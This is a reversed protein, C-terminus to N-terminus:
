DEFSVLDVPYYHAGLAQDFMPNITTHGDSVLAVLQMLAVAAQNRTMSPLRKDISAVASDWSARTMRYFANPHRAPLQEAITKLDTRWATMGSESQAQATASCLVLTAAFIYKKLRM